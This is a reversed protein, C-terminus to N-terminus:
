NLVEAIQAPNISVTMNGYVIQVKRDVGSHSHIGGYKVTSCTGSTVSFGVCRPSNGM